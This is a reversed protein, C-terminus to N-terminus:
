RRDLLVDMRLRGPISGSAAGQRARDSTSQSSGSNPVVRNRRGAPQALDPEAPFLIRAVELATSTSAVFSEDEAAADVGTHGM